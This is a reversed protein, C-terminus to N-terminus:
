LGHLIDLLQKAHRDLIKLFSVLMQRVGLRNRNADGRQRSARVELGTNRRLRLGPSPM